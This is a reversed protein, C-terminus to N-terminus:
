VFLICMSLIGSSSPLVLTPFLVIGHPWWLDREKGCFLDDKRGRQCTLNSFMRFNCVGRIKGSEVQKKGKEQNKFVYTQPVFNRIKKKLHFMFDDPYRNEISTWIQPKDIFESFYKCYRLNENKILISNVLSCNQTRYQKILKHNQNKNEIKLFWVYFQLLNFCM